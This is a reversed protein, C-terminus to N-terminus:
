APPEEPYDGRGFRRKIAKWRFKVLAALGAVGGLIFQLMLGGTGPDIYAAIFRGTTM